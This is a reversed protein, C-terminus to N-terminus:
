SSFGKRGHLPMHSADIGKSTLALLAAFNQALGVTAMVGVLEQSSKVGLIKLSTEVTNHFKTIGGVIGVAM